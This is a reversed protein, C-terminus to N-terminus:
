LGPMLCSCSSLCSKVFYPPMKLKPTVFRVKYAYSKALSMWCEVTLHRFEGFLSHSYTCGELSSDSGVNMRFQSGAAAPLLSVALGALTKQGASYGDTGSGALRRWWPLFEPGKKGCISDTKETKESDRKTYCSLPLLVQGTHPGTGWTYRGHSHSEPHLRVGCGLNGTIPNKLQPWEVPQKSRGYWWIAFSVLNKTDSRLFSGIKLCM